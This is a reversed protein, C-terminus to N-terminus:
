ASLVQQVDHRRLHETTGFVLLLAGEKPGKDTPTPLADLGRYQQVTMM